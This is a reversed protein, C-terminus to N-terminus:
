LQLAARALTIVLTRIINRVIKRTRAAGSIFCGHRASISGRLPNVECDNDRGCRNRAIGLTAIRGAEDSTNARTVYMCLIAVYRCTYGLGGRWLDGELGVGGRHREDGREIGGQVGNERGDPEYVGEM